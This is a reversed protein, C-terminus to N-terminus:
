AEMPYATILRPAIEGEDMQCVSRIRPHRGDPAELEGEVEFRPGFGTHKVRSLDYQQGHKKLAAALLEWRRRNFGFASFFRAKGAGYRHTPNLLYGTIKENEVVALHANPLKM